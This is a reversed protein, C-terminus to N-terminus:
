STFYPRSGHGDSPVKERAKYNIRINPGSDGNNILSYELDVVRPYFPTRCTTRGFLNTMGLPWTPMSFRM